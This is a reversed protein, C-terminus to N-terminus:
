AEPEANSDFKLSSLDDRDKFPWWTSWSQAQKQVYKLKHEEQFADRDAETEFSIVFKFPHDKAEFTPMGVWEM